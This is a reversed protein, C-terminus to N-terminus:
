NCSHYTNKILCMHLKLIPITGLDNIFLQLKKEWSDLYLVCRYWISPQLLQTELFKSETDDMFFVPTHPHLNPVLPQALYKSNLRAM